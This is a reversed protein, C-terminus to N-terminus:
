DSASLPPKSGEAAAEAAVEVEPEPEKAAKMVTPEFGSLYPRWPLRLLDIAVELKSAASRSDSEASVFDSLEPDDPDDPEIDEFM